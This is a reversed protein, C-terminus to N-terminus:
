VVVASREQPEYPRGMAEIENEIEGGAPGLPIVLVQDEDHHIVPDLQMKMQMCEKPSLEARFVSLQLHDGFGRMISLVKRLRKKDCIDYSVIYLRRM